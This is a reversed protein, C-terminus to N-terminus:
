RYAKALCEDATAALKPGNDPNNSAFDIAELEDAHASSAAALILALTIFRQM